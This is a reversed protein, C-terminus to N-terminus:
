PGGCVGLEHVGVFVWSLTEAIFIRWKQAPLTQHRTGPGRVGSAGQGPVGADLAEQSPLRPTPSGGQNFQGGAQAGQM